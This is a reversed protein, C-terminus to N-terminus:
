MIAYLLLVIYPLIYTDSTLLVILSFPNAIIFNVFLCSLWSRSYMAFASLFPHRGTSSHVVPLPLYERVRM